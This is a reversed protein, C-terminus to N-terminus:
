FDAEEGIIKCPIDIRVRILDCNKCACLCSYLQIQAFIQYVTCKVANATSDKATRLPVGLQTIASIVSMAQGNGAYFQFTLTCLCKIQALRYPCLAAIGAIGIGVAGAFGGNATRDHDGIAETIVAVLDGQGFLCLGALGLLFGINHHIQQQGGQAIGGIGNFNAETVVVLFVANMGGVGVYEMYSGAGFCRHPQLHIVVQYVARKGAEANADEATRLPVGLERGAHIVSVRNHDGIQAQLTCTGLHDVQASGRNCGANGARVGAAGAGDNITLDNNGTAVAVVTVSDAKSLLPDRQQIWGSGLFRM